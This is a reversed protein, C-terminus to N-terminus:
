LDFFWSQSSLAMEILEAYFDSEKMGAARVQQPLFSQRTQGPITNIEIFYFRDTDQELFFDVRVMGKCDLREYIARAIRDVRNRQAEDLDAPTVEETLGPVYKAEYDFFERTTIVETAPFVFLGDRRRYVGVSFERGVVYEEVIVQNGTNETDFARDIAEELGDYDTVKTMGISSGGANPKVFYPLSLSEKVLASGEEQQSSFLQVSNAVYLNPIGNLVSKTYAKNMTLASTLVGCSTYPISLMDLYGQLLGDEGPSGHLIIFAVDFHIVQGGLLLTFSGRDIPHQEGEEDVYYWESRTIVIRFLVYGKGQLQQQVFDASRLSVEAEGTYGGTVLAVNIAM